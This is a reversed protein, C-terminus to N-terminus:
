KRDDPPFPRAAGGSLVPPRPSLPATVGAGGPEESPGEPKGAPVVPRFFRRMGQRIAAAFRRLM